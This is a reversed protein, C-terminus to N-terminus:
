AVNSGSSLTIAKNMLADREARSIGALCENVKDKYSSGKKFGVAITTDEASATFGTTNNTLHIYTFGPNSSCDAIAGPEEAVYGDITGSALAGAMLPFTDMGTQVNIGHSAGQQQLAILHFTGIQATIKAGALDDLTQADKYAGNDKVVVVLQSEYYADSFDIAKLREATPSMGAIVFDLNGTQVGAVLGDWELKKIVLKKGLADAIKKAIMVDYGNAYGDANSIKVADNADDKQTWNFPIYGCELGVVLTDDDKGKSCGGFAFVSFATIVTLLITLLKKM